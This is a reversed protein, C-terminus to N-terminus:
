KLKKSFLSKYRYAKNYHIIKKSSYKDLLSQFKKFINKALDMKNNKIFKNIKKKLNKIKSKCSLNYIKKKKSKINNKKASKINPM